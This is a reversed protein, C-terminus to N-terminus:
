VEIEEELIKVLDKRADGYFSGVGVLSVHGSDMREEWSPLTKRFPATYMHLTSLLDATPSQDHM